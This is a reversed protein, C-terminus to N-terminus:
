KTAGKMLKLEVWMENTPDNVFKEAMKTEALTVKHWSNKTGKLASRIENIDIENMKDAKRKRDETEYWTFLPSPTYSSKANHGNWFQAKPRIVNSDDNKLDEFGKIM